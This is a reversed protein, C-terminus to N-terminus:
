HPFAGFVKIAADALLAVKGITEGLEMAGSLSKRLSEMTEAASELTTKIREGLPQPKQTEAIVENVDGEVAELRRAQAPLLDPQQRWAAIQAQVKEAEARFQQPTTIQIQRNAYYNTQNGGIVQKARIGGQVVVGGKMTKIKVVKGRQQAPTTRKKKKGTTKKPM